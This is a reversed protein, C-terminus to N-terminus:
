NFSDIFYYIEDWDNQILNLKINEVIAMDFNFDIM